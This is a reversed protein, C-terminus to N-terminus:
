PQVIDQSPYLIFTCLDPSSDIDKKGIEEGEESKAGVIEAYNVFTQLGADDDIKLVLDNEFPTNRIIESPM